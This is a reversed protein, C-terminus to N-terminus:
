DTMELCTQTRVSGRKLEALIGGACDFEGGAAMQISQDDVAIIHGTACLCESLHPAGRRVLLSKHQRNDVTRRAGFCSEIQSGVEYEAFRNLLSPQAIDEIDGSGLHFAFMAPIESVINIQRHAKLVREPLREGGGHLVHTLAPHGDLQHIWDSELPDDNHLEFKWADLWLRKM